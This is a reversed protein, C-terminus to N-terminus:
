APGNKLRVTLPLVPSLRGTWNCLCKQLRTKLNAVLSVEECCHLMITCPKSIFILQLLVFVEKNQISKNAVRGVGLNGADTDDEAHQWPSSQLAETRCTVPIHGDSKTWPLPQSGLVIDVSLILHVTNFTPRNREALFGKGKTQECSTSDLYLVHSDSVLDTPFFSVNFQFIGVLHVHRKLHSPPVIAM